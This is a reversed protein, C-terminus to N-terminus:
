DRITNFTYYDYNGKDAISKALETTGKEINGEHPAIILVNSNRNSSEKVWDKGETTNAYLETM